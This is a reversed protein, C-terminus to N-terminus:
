RLRKAMYPADLEYGLRRYYGRVGVGSTVRLKDAGEEKALTEARGVLERGFGSHQWDGHEHIRMMRGFVKLERIAANGDAHIRLRAYGVLADHEELVCSIFHERGGSADYSAVKTMTEGSGTPVGKHGVERCRICRCEKGMRRLEERALERIHSKDVGAEIQPLPIDRQIRQIRVWEPVTAKMRAILSAAVETSYPSYEGRQWMDYLRTGKVVLTPYIKLMDPRFAPDDFMREFSRMDGEPSSGPLGPMLHYCVKLGAEKARRTADIVEQVGHGRDVSALIADDLVQVGLEVRTTGLAMSREIQVDDFVDPRTEVTMGICRHGANENFSHAEGITSACRGNMADFCRRVFWEQYDPDRSTFTGGMVILDVKDTAHGIAELQQLRDTVQLFPDFDNRIARRAAPEKGTYSQPSDNDVGGPCYSCTGHPCPHPSTMVAVVSVGSLTRVPKRMLLAKVVPLEEETAHRLIDSNPPVARLAFETCLKVKARQLGDKDVIKGDLILQIIRRHYELPSPMGLPTSFV